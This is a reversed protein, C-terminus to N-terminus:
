HAALDDPRAEFDISSEFEALYTVNPNALEQALRRLAHDLASM